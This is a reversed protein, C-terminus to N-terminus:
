SAGDGGVRRWAEARGLRLLFRERGGMSFALWETATATATAATAALIAGLRGGEYLKFRALEFAGCLPCDTVVM